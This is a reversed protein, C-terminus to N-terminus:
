ELSRIFSVAKEVFISEVWRTPSRQISLKGGFDGFIERMEPSLIKLPKGTRDRGTTSILVAKKLLRSNTSGKVLILYDKQERFVDRHKVHFNNGFISKMRIQAFDGARGAVMIEFYGIIYLAPASDFGFGQLGAYFVLFDGKELHRLGSKPPTPDGYTLTIFEPDFHISQDRMRGQLSKPFYDILPRGSAGITNGYTRDDIGGYDPIPIYEFSGDDFLPGNIKGAATDAGVRLLAVKMNKGRQM